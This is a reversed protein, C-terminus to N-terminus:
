PESPQLGVLTKSAVGWFNMGGGLLIVPCNRHGHPFPTGDVRAWLTCEGLGGPLALWPGLRRSQGNTAFALTRSGLQVPAWM